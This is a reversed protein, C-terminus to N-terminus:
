EAGGRRAAIGGLFEMVASAATMQTTNAIDRPPAVEVLSMGGAGGLSAERVMTLLERSSFGGPRPSQTGPGHASDLVDIDLNVWFGDTGRGAIEVAERIAARIGKEIVDEVTRIEFGLSKAGEATALYNAYGRTGIHVVNEPRIAGDTKTLLNRLPCGCFLQDGRLSEACDYHADLWIVGIQGRKRAFASAAPYSISDDGGLMIPVTDNDAAWEIVSAIRRFTEDYVKYDQIAINGLDAVDIVRSFDFGLESSYPRFLSFAQRIGIPGLHTGVHHQTGLDFPVGFILADAERAAEVGHKLM